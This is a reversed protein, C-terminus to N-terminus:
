ATFYGPGVRMKHILWGPLSRSLLTGLLGHALSLPILNPYRTFILASYFGGLFTAGILVPNPMHITSFILAVLFRNLREAAFVMMLRRHFFGQLIYQQVFASIFYFVPLPTLGRVSRPSIMWRVVTLLLLGLICPLAMRFTARFAPSLNDLRLGLTLPRDRYILWQSAIIWLFIVWGAWSYKPRLLWIYTTIASYVMLVESLILCHRARVSM